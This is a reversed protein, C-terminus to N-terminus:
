GCTGREKVYQALQSILRGSSLWVNLMGSTIHQSGVEAVPQIRDLIQKQPLEDSAFYQFALRRYLSQRALPPPTIGVRAFTSSVRQALRGFPLIDASHSLIRSVEKPEALPELQVIKETIMGNRYRRILVRSELPGKDGVGDKSGTRFVQTVAKELESSTMPSGPQLIFAVLEDNSRYVEAFAVHLCLDSDALWRVLTERSCWLGEPLLALIEDVQILDFFYWQAALV